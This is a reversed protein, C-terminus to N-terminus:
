GTRVDRAQRHVAILEAHEFVVEGGGVAADFIHIDRLLACLIGTVVNEDLCARCHQRLCVGIGLGGEPEECLSTPESLSAFIRPRRRLATRTQKKDVLRQLFSRPAYKALSKEM